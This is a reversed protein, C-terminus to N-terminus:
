VVEFTTVDNEDFSLGPAATIIIGNYTVGGRVFTAGSSITYTQVGSGSTPIKNIVETTNPVTVYQMNLRVTFAGTIPTSRAVVIANIPKTGASTDNYIYGLVWADSQTGYKKVSHINGIQPMDGSTTVSFRVSQVGSPMAYILTDANVQVRSIKRSPYSQNTEFTMMANRVLCPIATFTRVGRNVAAIMMKVASTNSSMDPPCYNRTDTVSLSADLPKRGIFLYWEPTGSTSPIEVAYAIRWGQGSIFGGGAAYALPLMDNNANGIYNGTSGGINVAFSTLIKLSKDITFNVGGASSALSADSNEIATLDSLKISYDEWEKDSPLAAHNYGDFDNTRYGNLAPLYEWEIVQALIDAKADNTGTVGNLGNCNTKLKSLEQPVLGCNVQMIQEDTLDPMQPLRVPKHFSWKNIKGSACVPALGFGAGTSGLGLVYYIDAHISIGIKPEKQAWIKVGDNPM